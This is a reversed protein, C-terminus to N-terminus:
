PMPEPFSERYVPEPNLVVKEPLAQGNLHAILAAVGAECLDDIRSDISTLTPTTIGGIATNDYGIIRVQAPCAQGARHLMKQIRAALLDGSCLIGDFDTIATGEPLDPFALRDDESDKLAMSVAARVHIGPLAQRVGARFGRIKERTSTTDTDYAFLISRCGSRILEGSMRASADRDSCVVCFVNPSRLVANILIVPVEAAAQRIHSNDHKEKFISGILFIGDVKKDLLFRLYQRKKAPDNGTCCLILDYGEAKLLREIGSVARAYYLDTVDTCLVGIMRASNLGMGRAFVNPSYDLEAIAELVCLRTSERVNGKQNLVRSVTAISVGCHEAIDYIDTSM